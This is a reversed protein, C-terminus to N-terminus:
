FFDIFSNGKKAKGNYSIYAPGLNYAHVTSSQVYFYMSIHKDSIIPPYTTPFGTVMLTGDTAGFCLM